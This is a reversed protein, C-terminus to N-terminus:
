EKYPQDWCKECTKFEDCLPTNDDTLDFIYNLCCEGQFTLEHAKPFAKLFKTKYTEEPCEKAWNEIIEVAKEHDASNESCYPDLRCDECGIECCDTLRDKERLYTVADM